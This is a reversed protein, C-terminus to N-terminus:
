CIVLSTMSCIYETGLEKGAASIFVYNRTRTVPDDEKSTLAAPKKIWNKSYLSPKLQVLQTSHIIAKLYQSVCHSVISLHHRTFAICALSLIILFNPNNFPFKHKFLYYLIIKNVIFCYCEVTICSGDRFISQSSQHSM